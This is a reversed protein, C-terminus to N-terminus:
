SKERLGLISGYGYTGELLSKTNFYGGADPVTVEINRGTTPQEYKGTMPNLLKSGIPNRISVVAIWQNAM